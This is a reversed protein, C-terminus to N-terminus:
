LQTLKTIQNQGLKSFFLTSLETNWGSIKLDSSKPSPYKQRSTFQVLSMIQLIAYNKGSNCPIGLVMGSFCLVLGTERLPPKATQQVM